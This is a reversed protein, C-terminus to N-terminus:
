LIVTAGYLKKVLKIFREVVDDIAFEPYGTIYSEVKNNFNKYWHESIGKKGLLAGMISGATAGTCDNDLGMAVVESIVKTFDGGGMMLGFVVLCANNNTHVVHMGAFREDVAKRADLYNHIEPSKELAWVIDNYLACESPIESLGIRVAEEATGVAFAAAEVAAFFMAGYIGNRRHSLYADKHALEAAKEPYGACAYAWPDSRIDAGIWQVFPNDIDAAEYASIGKKLNKLAVDEATCAVPLLELWAKGVDETTLNYGYKELILLGLLTYTVDDDVGVSEMASKTYKKRLTKGYQIGEMNYVGNWYDVPPFATNTDGALKRMAEVSMGEVPVGLICGAFRGLVAGAMKDYIDDPIKDWLKRPGDTRLSKITELDNPEKLSPKELKDIQKTYEGITKLLEDYIKKVENDAGYEIKLDSYLKFAALAQNVESLNLYQYM